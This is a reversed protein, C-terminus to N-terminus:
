KCSVRRQSDYLSGSVRLEVVWYQSDGNNMKKECRADIRQFLRGRCKFFLGFRPEKLNACLSFESKKSLIVKLPSDPYLLSM